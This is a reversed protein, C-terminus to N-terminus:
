SLRDRVLSGRQRVQVIKKAYGDLDLPDGEVCVLDAALGPRVTGITGALGLLEAAGGTAATIAALPSMGVDRMLALEDLNAGHAFVGSDTGMAIRVGAAAARAISEGHAATVTRAKDLMAVPVSAGAEAAALLAHGATLTPVLWTGHALFLEIAEDDLFVGHEISRAGARIANKVGRTGQAHAMVGLGAAAAEAVCVDLEEANFHAHRPDDRPSLV